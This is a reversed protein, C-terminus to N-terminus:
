FVFQAVNSVARFDSRVRAGVLVKPHLSACPSVKQSPLAKTKAM